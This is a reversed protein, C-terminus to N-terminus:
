GAPGAAHQDPHRAHGDAERDALQHQEGHEGEGDLLGDVAAGPGRRRSTTAITSAPVRGSGSGTAPACSTCTTSPGAPHTAADTPASRSTGISRGASSARARGPCAAPRARRGPRSRRGPAPPRRAPPGRRGARLRHEHGIAPGRRELAALPDSRVTAAPRRGAAAPRAPPPRTTPSRARRQPRDLRQARPAASIVPGAPVSRSGTGASRRRSGPRQRHGEVVHEVPQGGARSRCRANTASAACSSRLGSAYMRVWSSTAWRSPSPPQGARGVQEGVDVPEGPQDVVQQQQGPGAGVLACRGPALRDVGQGQQALHGAPVGGGPHGDADGVPGRDEHGRVAVLQPPHQGVQHVVRHPVRAGPHHQGAPTRRALRQERHGVVPRADRRGVPLPDEVPEGPEVVGADRSAPPAPRPSAMTRSSTRRDPPVMVRVSAAGASVAGPEPSRASTRSGRQPGAGRRGDGPQGPASRGM